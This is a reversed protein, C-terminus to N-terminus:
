IIFIKSPKLQPDSASLTGRLVIKNEGMYALKLGHENNEKLKHLVHCSIGFAYGISWM